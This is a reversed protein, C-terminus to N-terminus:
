IKNFLATIEKRIQLSYDRENSDPNRSSTLKGRRPIEPKEIICDRDFPYCGNVPDSMITFNPEINSSSYRSKHVLGVRINQFGAKNFANLVPKMNNGTHMCTDFFMIPAGDNKELLPYNSLITERSISEPNRRYALPNTFYMEPLKINAYEEHWAERLALYAPRASRDLFIVSKIDNHIVYDRLDRGIKRIEDRALSERFIKFRM